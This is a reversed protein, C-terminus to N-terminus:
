VMIHLHDLVIDVSDSEGSAGAGVSAEIGTFVEIRGLAPIAGVGGSALNITNCDGIAIVKNFHVVLTVLDFVVALEDETAGDVGSTLDRSNGAGSSGSSSSDVGAIVILSREGCIITACFDHSDILITDLGISSIDGDVVDLVTFEIALDFAPDNDEWATDIGCAGFGLADRDHREDRVDGASHGHLSCGGRPLKSRVRKEDTLHKRLTPSVIFHVDFM